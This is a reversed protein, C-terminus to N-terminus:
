RFDGWIYEQNYKEAILECLKGLYQLNMQYVVEPSPDLIIRVDGEKYEKNVNKKKEFCRLDRILGDRIILLESYRKDKYGNIYAESSMMM